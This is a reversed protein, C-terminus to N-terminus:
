PSAAAEPEVDYIVVSDPKLGLAGGPFPRDRMALLAERSEWVSVSLVRGSQPDSAHYHAVVGPQSAMWRRFAEYKAPDIEPRKEFAAVRMVQM